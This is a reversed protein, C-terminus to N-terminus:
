LFEHEGGFRFEVASGVADTAPFEFGCHIIDVEARSARPVVNVVEDWALREISREVSPSDM